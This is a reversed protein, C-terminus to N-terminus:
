VYKKIIVLKGEYTVYVGGQQVALYQEYLKVEAYVQMDGGKALGIVSPIFEISMGTGIKVATSGPSSSKVYWSVEFFEDKGTIEQKNYNPRCIFAVPTTLAANVKFGKTQVVDFALTKPMAVNITTQAQLESNTPASPYAGSYHAALVRVTVNKFCRADLYLTNGWHGNADKESLCFLEDEDDTINRWVGDELVQWFYAANEGTVNITGAKLQAILEVVWNGNSDPVVALPNITFGKPQNLSVSYNKSDYYSTYLPISCEVKVETNTRRDVFSLIAFIEIPTDPSINRKIKLSYLPTGSDSIVMDGGTIIRNTGDPKPAGLYWEIGNLSQEGNMIGEPDQVSVYGMLLCPVLSRDPEYEGSDQNYTQVPNGSLVKLDALYTLPDINAYLNKPKTKIAM